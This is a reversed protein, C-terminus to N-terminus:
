KEGLIELLEEPNLVKVHEQVFHKKNRTILFDVRKAKASFLQINDEFPPLDSDLALQLIKPTLPVIKFDKVIFKADERAQMEPVSRVRLFYIVAVTLASVYGQINHKKIGKIAALSEMWGSRKTLVDMFVNIDIHIKM